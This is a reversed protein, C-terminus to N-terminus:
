GLDKHSHSRVARKQPSLLYRFFHMLASTLLNHRSPPIILDWSFGLLLLRLVELLFLAFLFLVLERVLHIVISM